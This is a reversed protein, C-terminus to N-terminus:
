HYLWRLLTQIKSIRCCAPSKDVAIHSTVASNQTELFRSKLIKLRVQVLDRKLQSDSPNQSPKSIFFIFQIHSEFIERIERNLTSPFLYIERSSFKTSLGFLLKAPLFKRRWVFIAFYKQMLIVILRYTLVGCRRVKGIRDINTM